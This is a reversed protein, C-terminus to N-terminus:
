REHLIGEGSLHLDGSLVQASADRADQQIRSILARIGNARQSNIQDGLGVARFIPTPDIELIKSTPHDSYIGVVITLLGRVLHSDSDGRFTLIPSGAANHSVLTQLWVQSSCGLVRNAVSYVEKPMPGLMLGLEYLFRFRDDDNEFDALNQFIEDLEM